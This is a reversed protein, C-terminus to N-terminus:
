MSYIFTPVLFLPKRCVLREIANFNFRFPIICRIVISCKFCRCFIPLIFKWCVYVILAIIIEVTVFVVFKLHLNVRLYHTRLVLRAFLPVTNHRSNMVTPPIQITTLNAISYQQHLPTKCLRFDQVKRVWVM